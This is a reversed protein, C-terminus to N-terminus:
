AEYLVNQTCLSGPMNHPKYSLPPISVTASPTSVCTCTFQKNERPPIETSRFLHIFKATFIFLALPTIVLDNRFFLICKLTKMKNRIVQGITNCKESEPLKKKKSRSRKIMNKPCAHKNM